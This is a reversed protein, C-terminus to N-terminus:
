ESKKSAFFIAILPISGLLSGATMMTLHQTVTTTRQFLVVSNSADPLNIFAWFPLLTAMLTFLALWALDPAVFPFVAARWTAIAGLGDLRVADHLSKPIAETKRRLLVLAFATVLWNGFWLSYSATRLAEANRTALFAVPLWLLQTTMIMAIVAGRGRGRWARRALLYTAIAYLLLAGVLNGAVAILCIVLERSM